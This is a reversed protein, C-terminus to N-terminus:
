TGSPTRTPRLIGATRSRSTAPQTGLLLTHPARLSADIIAEFSGIRGGGGADVLPSTWSGDRSRPASAPLSPQIPTSAAGSAAAAAATKPKKTPSPAAATAFQKTSSGVRQELLWKLAQARSVTVESNDISFHLDVTNTTLRIVKASLTGLNHFEKGAAKAPVLCEAGVALESKASARSRSTRMRRGQPYACACSFRISFNCVLVVRTLM